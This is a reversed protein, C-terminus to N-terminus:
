MWETGNRIQLWPNESLLDNLDDILGGDTIKTKFHLVVDGNANGLYSKGIDSYASLQDDLKDLSNRLTSSSWDKTEIVTGKNFTKEWFNANDVGVSTDIRRWTGDPMEFRKEIYGINKMRIEYLDDLHAKAGKRWPSKQHAASHMLGKIKSEKGVGEAMLKNARRAADDGYDSMFKKMFHGCGPNGVIGCVRGFGATADDGWNMGNKKTIKVARDATGKMVKKETIKAVKEVHRTAKRTDEAATSAANKAQKLGNKVSSGKKIKSAIKDFGKGSLFMEVIFGIIYGVVFAVNFRDKDSVYGTEEQLYEDTMDEWEENTHSAKGFPNLLNALSIASFIISQAMMLLVGAIGVQGIIDKIAWIGEFIEQIHLFFTLDEFLNLAFGIFFGMVGGAIEPGTFFALLGAVLKGLIYALGGGDSKAVLNDNIDVAEAKAEYYWCYEGWFDIEFKAKYNNDGDVYDKYIRSSDVISFEVYDVAVDDTASVKLTLWVHEVFIGSWVIDTVQIIDSMQPIIEEPVVPDNDYGAPVTDNEAFYDILGDGDTDNSNPDTNLYEVSDNLGDGDYDQLLPNSTVYIEEFVANDGRGRQVFIYWGSVEDGDILGDGDTDDDYPKTGENVEDGDNLGDGDTDPDSLDLRHDGTADSYDYEEINTLGDNDLDEDTDNVYPDTGYFAEDITLMTDNDDDTDWVNVTGNGDTDIGGQYDELNSM